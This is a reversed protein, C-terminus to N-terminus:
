NIAPYCATILDTVFCFFVQGFLQDSEGIRTTARQNQTDFFGAIFWRTGFAYLRKRFDHIQSVTQFHCTTIKGFRAKRMQRYHTNGDVGIPRPTKDNKANSSRTKKAGM